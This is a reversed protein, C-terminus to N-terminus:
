LYEWYTLLYWPRGGGRPWNVRVNARIDRGSAPLGGGNVEKGVLCQFGEISVQVVPEGRKDMVPKSDREPTGAFVVNGEVKM